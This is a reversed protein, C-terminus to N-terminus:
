VNVLAFLTTQEAAFLKSDLFIHSLNLRMALHHLKDRKDFILSETVAFTDLHIIDFDDDIWGSYFVM